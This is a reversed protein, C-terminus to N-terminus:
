NGGAQKSMVINRIHVDAIGIGNIASEIFWINIFSKDCTPLM